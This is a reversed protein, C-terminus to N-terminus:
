QKLIDRIMALPIAVKEPRNRLEYNLAYLAKELLYYQLMTKMEEKSKPILDTQKVTDLYAHLFFGGMYHIWLDAYSLLYKIEEKSVHSTTLFGEYGAYYYSRIMSGVDGLPSRKLRTESHRRWPVGGFDHIAVDRGTLLVQGLSLTGHVRIKVVDLKKSYIKKFISVVENKRSLLNEVTTSESDPISSKYQQLNHYTERVLALMSSFLSRQYHSSFNEPMFAKEEKAGSLALHLEGARIGILRSQDSARAGLLDQLEASLNEFLLPQELTGRYEIRQLLEKRAALIREIYNNIREKMYSYGDGHNEVMRQIMALVFTGKAFLWEISGLYEPTYKFKVEQSLYQSVELDPNIGTDVKRYIKLFFHNDYAIDTNNQYRGTHIRSRVENHQQIYKEMEGNGNFNITSTKLSLSENKGLNHFLWLQMFSTYFADCLIGEQGDMKLKALVSQPFEHLLTNVSQKRVFTLPLLYTEPLGTKYNVDILLLSTANDGASVNVHEAITCSYIGLQKGTFWNTKSLYAPLIENELNQRIDDNEILENWTRIELEPLEERKVPQQWSKELLFWQFSHPGLTFFYPANNRVPPFNNKSFIEV